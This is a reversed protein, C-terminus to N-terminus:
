RCASRASAPRSRRGHRPAPPGKPSQRRASQWDEDRHTNTPIWEEGDKEARRPTSTAPSDKQRRIHCVADDEKDVPLIEVPARQSREMGISASTCGFIALDIWDLETFEDSTARRRTKLALQHLHPDVATLRVRELVRPRVGGVHALTGSPFAVSRNDECSGELVEGIMWRAFLPISTWIATSKTAPAISPLYSMPMTNEASM